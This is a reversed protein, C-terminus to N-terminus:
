PTLLEKGASAVTAKPKSCCAPLELRQSPRLLTPPPSRAHNTGTAKHDNVPHCRVSAVFFSSLLGDTM